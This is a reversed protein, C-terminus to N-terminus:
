NSLHCINTQRRVQLVHDPLHQLLDAHPAQRGYDGAGGQMVHYNVLFM